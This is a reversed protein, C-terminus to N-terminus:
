SADKLEVIILHITTTGVNEAWHTIPPRYVTDGTALELESTTGDAAHNIAKGGAIVHIVCAPHSHMREKEGPALTSELVRVRENELKVHVTKPNVVAPDQARSASPAALALLLAGALCALPRWTTRM